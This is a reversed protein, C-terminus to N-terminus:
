SASTLLVGNAAEGAAIAAVLEALAPDECRLCDGLRTEAATEEAVRLADLAATPDAPISAASAAPGPAQTPDPSASPADPTGTGRTVAAVRGSSGIAAFHQRHRTEVANLADALEPHAVQVAAYLAILDAEAAVVERRLLEDPAAQAADPSTEAPEDTCGTVLGVAVACFLVSRRSPLPVPTAHPRLVPGVTPWKRSSAPSRTSAGGHGRGPQDDAGRALPVSVM